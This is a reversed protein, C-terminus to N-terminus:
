PQPHHCTIVALRPRTTVPHVPRSVDPRELDVAALPLPTQRSSLAELPGLLGPVARRQLVGEQRCTCSLKGGASQQYSVSARLVLWEGVANGGKCYFYCYFVNKLIVYGRIYGVKM